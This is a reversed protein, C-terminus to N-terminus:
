RAGSRGARRPVLLERSALGADWAYNAQRPPLAAPHAPQQPQAPQAARRRRAGDARADRARTGPPAVARPRAGTMAAGRGAAPGRVPILGILNSIGFVFGGAQTDIRLGANFTLDVPWSGFGTYGRAHDVFDEDNALGYVGFSASSISATSRDRAGTSRSATSPTSSPRTTATAFRSSTRPSSTPPPGAISTRSRPRSRALSRQSRRRLLARLAARQRLHGRRVGPAAARAGVAARVVAVGDLSSSRTRTTAGSRRSRPTSAPRSATGAADAPVPEDRTDNVFTARLTSLISSGGILM